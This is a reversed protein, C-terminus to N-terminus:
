KELRLRTASRMCEIQDWRSFYGGESFAALAPFHDPLVLIAMIEDNFFILKSGLKLCLNYSVDLRM